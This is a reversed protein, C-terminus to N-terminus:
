FLNLGLGLSAFGRFALSVGADGQFAVPGAGVTLEAATADGLRLRARLCVDGEAEVGVRTGSAPVGSQMVLLPGAELTGTVRFAGRERSLGAGVRLGLEREAFAVAHQGQGYRFSLTALATDLPGALRPRQYAATAEAGAVWSLGALFATAATAAV